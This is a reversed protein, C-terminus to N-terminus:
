KWLWPWKVPVMGAPTVSSTPSLPPMESDLSTQQWVVSGM